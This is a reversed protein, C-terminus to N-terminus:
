THEVLLQIITVSGHDKIFNLPRNALKKLDQFLNPDPASFLEAAM